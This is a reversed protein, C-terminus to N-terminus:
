EDSYNNTTYSILWGLLIIDGVHTDSGVRTTRIQIWKSGAPTGAITIAPTVPGIKLVNAISSAVTVTSSQATGYAADLADGDGFAVGQLSFIITHSSADTSATWFVPKAAITGGDYNPPMMFGFEHNADNASAVFKTGAWNVKNTSTEIISIGGDPLTTGTWGGVLSLLITRKAYQTVNANPTATIQGASNTVTMGM